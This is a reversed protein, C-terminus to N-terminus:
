NMEVSISEGRERERVMYMNKKQFFASSFNRLVSVASFHLFHVAACSSFSRRAAAALFVLAAFLAM